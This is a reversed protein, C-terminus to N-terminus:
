VISKSVLKKSLWLGFTNQQQDQLTTYFGESIEKKNILVKAGQKQSKSIFNEISEGMIYFTPTQNDERKSTIAGKIGANKTLWYKEGEGEGEGEGRKEM